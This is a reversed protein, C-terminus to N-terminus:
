IPTLLFSQLIVRITKSQIHDLFALSILVCWLTGDVDFVIGKLRPLGGRESRGPDLPAFRKPPRRTQALSM